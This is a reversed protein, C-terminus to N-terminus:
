ISRRRNGLAVLGLAVLGLAMLLSTSPEPVVVDGITTGIRFEDYSYAGTGIAGRLYLRNLAITTGTGSGTPSGLTTSTPNLWTSIITNAGSIQYQQVIFYTTGNQLNDNASSIFTGSGARVGLDTQGSNLATVAGWNQSNILGTQTFTSAGSFGSVARMLYSVYISEGDLPATITFVRTTLFTTTNSDSLFAQSGGNVTVSGGSYSLAATQVTQGVSATSWASWSSGGSASGQNTGNIGANATYNEFGDYLLLAAHGPLSCSMLALATLTSISLLKKKM